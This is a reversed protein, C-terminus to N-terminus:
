PEITNLTQSSQPTTLKKNNKVSILNDGQDRNDIYPTNTDSHKNEIIISNNKQYEQTNNYDVSFNFQLKREDDIKSIIPSTIVEEKSNIIKNFYVESHDVIIDVYLDDDNIGCFSNAM